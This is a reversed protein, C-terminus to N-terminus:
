SRWLWRWPIASLHHDVRKRLKTTRPNILTSIFCGHVNSTHGLQSSRMIVQLTLESFAPRGDQWTQSNYLKYFHLYFWLCKGCKGRSRTTVFDDNGPLYSCHYRTKCGPLNPPWLNIPFSIFGYINTVHGLQTSTMIPQLTLPSISTSIFGNNDRLRTVTIGDDRALYHRNM